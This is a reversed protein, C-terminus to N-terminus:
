ADMCTLPGQNAPILTEVPPVPMPCAHIPKACQFQCTPVSLYLNVHYLFQIAKSQIPEIADYNLECLVIM